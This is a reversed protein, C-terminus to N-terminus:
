SVLRFLAGRASGASKYRGFYRGAFIFCMLTVVLLIGSTEFVSIFYAFLIHTLGGLPSGVLSNLIWCGCALLMISTGLLGAAELQTVLKSDEVLEDQWYFYAGAFGAVHLPLSAFAIVYFLFETV